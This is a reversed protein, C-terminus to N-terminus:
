PLDALVSLPRLNDQRLRQLSRAPLGLLATAWLLGALLAMKWAAWSSTPQELVMVMVMVSLM